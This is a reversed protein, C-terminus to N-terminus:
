YGPDTTGRAINSIAFWPQRRSYPHASLEQQQLGSVPPLGVVPKKIKKFSSVCFLYKIASIWGLHDVHPRSVIIRHNREMERFGEEDKTINIALQM